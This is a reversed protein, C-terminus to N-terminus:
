VETHKMSDQKQANDPEAQRVCIDMTCYWATHPTPLTRKTVGVRIPNSRDLYASTPCQFRGQPSITDTSVPKFAPPTELFLHTAMSLCQWARWGNENLVLTYVRQQLAVTKLKDLKGDINFRRRHSRQDTYSSVRWKLGACQHIKFTKSARVVFAIQGKPTCSPSQQLREVLFYTVWCIHRNHIHVYTHAYLFSTHAINIAASCRCLFAHFVLKAMARRGILRRQRTRRMRLM